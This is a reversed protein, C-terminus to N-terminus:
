YDTRSHHVVFGVALILYGADDFPEQPDGFEVGGFAFNAGIESALTAKFLTLEEADTQTLFQKMLSDLVAKVEAYLKSVIAHDRDDEAQTGIQISVNSSM